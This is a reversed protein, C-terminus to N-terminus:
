QNIILNNALVIDAIIMESIIREVEDVPAYEPRAFYEYALRRMIPNSIVINFFKSENFQSIMGKYEKARMLHNFSFEHSPYKTLFKIMDMHNVLCGVAFIAEKTEPM